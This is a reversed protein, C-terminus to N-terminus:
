QNAIPEGESIKAPQELATVVLTVDDLRDKNALIRLAALVEPSFASKLSEFATDIVAKTADSYNM